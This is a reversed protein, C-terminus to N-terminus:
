IHDLIIYTTYLIFAYDSHYSDVHFQPDSYTNDFTDDNGDFQGRIEEETLFQQDM